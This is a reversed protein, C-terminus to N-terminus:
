SMEVQCATLAGTYGRGTNNSYVDTQVYYCKSMNVPLYEQHTIIQRIEAFAVSVSRFTKRNNTKTNTQKIKSLKVLLRTTTIDQQAASCWLQERM